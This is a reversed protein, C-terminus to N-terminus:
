FFLTPIQSISEVPEPHSDTAPETSIPQHVETDWLLRPFEQSTSHVDAEWSPSQEM